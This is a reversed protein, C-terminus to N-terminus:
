LHPSLAVGRFVQGAAATGIVSGTPSAPDVFTVIRSSADDDTTGILTVNAGSAFAALGKFDVAPRPQVDTGRGLDLNTGDM